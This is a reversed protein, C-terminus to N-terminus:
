MMRVYCILIAILAITPLPAASGETMGSDAV